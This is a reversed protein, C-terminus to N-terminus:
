WHERFDRVDVSYTNGLLLYSGFLHMIERENTNTYPFGCDLLERKSILNANMFNESIKLVEAPFLQQFSCLPSSTIVNEILRDQITAFRFEPSEIDENELLKWSNSLFYKVRDLEISSLTSTSISM